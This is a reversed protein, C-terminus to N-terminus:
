EENISAGWTLVAYDCVEESIVEVSYGSEAIHVQLLTTFQLKDSYFAQPLPIKCTCFVSECSPVYTAKAGEISPIVKKKLWDVFSADIPNKLKKKNKVAHEMHPKLYVSSHQLLEKM